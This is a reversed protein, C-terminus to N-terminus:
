SRCEYWSRSPAPIQRAKDVLIEAIPLFMQGFGIKPAPDDINGVRIEPVRMLFEFQRRTSKTRSRTRCRRSRMPRIARLGNASDIANEIRFNQGDTKRPPERSVLAARKQEAVLFSQLSQQVIRRPRHLENECAFRM